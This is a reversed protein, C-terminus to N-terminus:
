PVASAWLFVLKNSHSQFLIDAVGFWKVYNTQEILKKDNEEAARRNVALSKDELCCLQVMQQILIFWMKNSTVEYFLYIKLKLIDLKRSVFLLYIFPYGDCSVM